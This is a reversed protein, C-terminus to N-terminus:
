PVCQALAACSEVASLIIWGDPVAGSNFQWCESSNDAPHACVRSEYIGECEGDDCWETRCGAYNPSDPSDMPEGYVPFCRGEDAVAQSCAAEPLGGCETVCGAGATDGGGAQRSGDAPATPCIDSSGGGGEASSGQGGAVTSDCAPLVLTVAFVANRWLRTDM